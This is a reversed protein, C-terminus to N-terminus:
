STSPVVLVPCKAHHLIKEATSGLLMKKFGSRGRSAIVILDINQEEAFDLITNAVSTQSTVVQQTDFYGALKEQCLKELAQKSGAEAKKMMGSAEIVASGLFFSSNASAMDELVCLVFCSLQERGLQDVLSRYFPFATYSEDSFDTTLLIREIKQPPAM